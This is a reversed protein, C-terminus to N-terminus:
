EKKSTFYLIFYSYPPYILISLFSIVSKDHKGKKNNGYRIFTTVMGIILLAFSLVKSEQKVEGLFSSQTLM